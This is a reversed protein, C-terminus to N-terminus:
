RVHAHRRLFAQWIVELRGELAWNEGEAMPAEPYSFGHEGCELCTMACRIYANGEQRPVRWERHVCHVEGIRQLVADRFEVHESDMMLTAHIRACRAKFEPDDQIKQIEAQEVPDDLMAQIEEETKPMSGVSEGCDFAWNLALVAVQFAAEQHEATTADAHAAIGIIALMQGACDGVNDSKPFAKGTLANWHDIARQHLPKTAFDIM